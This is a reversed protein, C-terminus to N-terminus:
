ELEELDFWNQPSFEMEELFGGDIPQAPGDVVDMPWIFKREPDDASLFNVALYNESGDLQIKYELENENGMFSNIGLWGHKDFFAMRTETAEESEIRSRCCWEFDQTKLWSDGEGQYSATGLAASTHLISIQDSSNLFINGAIMEAPLSRIGLYLYEESKLLYLESGDAFPYHHAQNWEGPEIVGDIVPQDKAEEDVTLTTELTESLPDANSCGSLAFFIILVLYLRFQHNNPM